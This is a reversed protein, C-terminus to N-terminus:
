LEERKTKGCHPCLLLIKTGVVDGKVNHITLKEVIEMKHHCWLKEVIFRLISQKDSM